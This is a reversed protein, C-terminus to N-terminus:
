EGSPHAAASPASVTGRLHHSASAPDKTFPCENGRCARCSCRETRLSGKVSVSLVPHSRRSCSFLQAVSKACTCRSKLLMDCGFLVPNLVSAHMIQECQEHASTDDNYRTRSWCYVGLTRMAITMGGSRAVLCMSEEGARAATMQLSRALRRRATGPGIRNMLLRLQQTPQAPVLSYHIRASTALRAHTACPIQGLAGRLATM